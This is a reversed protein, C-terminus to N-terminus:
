LLKHYTKKFFFSIHFECRKKRALRFGSKSKYTKKISSPFIFDVATRCTFQEWGNETWEAAGQELYANIQESGEEISQESFIHICDKLSGDFVLQEPLAEGIALRGKLQNASFVLAPDGGGALWAQKGADNGLCILRCKEFM